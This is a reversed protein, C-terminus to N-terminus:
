EGKNMVDDLGLKFDKTWKGVPLEDIIVTNDKNEDIYINGSIEYSTLDTNPIIQGNYNKYWPHIVPFEEGRLKAKIINCIERPNFNPIFTSWGTGIGQCGNVLIM